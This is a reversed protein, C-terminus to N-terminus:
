NVSFFKRPGALFAEMATLFPTHQLKRWPQDMAETVFKLVSDGQLLQKAACYEGIAEDLDGSLLEKAARYESIAKDLTMKREDLFPQLKTAVITAAHIHSPKVHLLLELDGAEGTALTTAFRLAKGPKRFSRMQRRRSGPRYCPVQYLLSKGCRSRYIPVTVNGCKVSKPCPTSNPTNNKMTHKTQSRKSSVAPARRLAPQNPAPVPEACM